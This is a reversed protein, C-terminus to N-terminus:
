KQAEGILDEVADTLADDNFSGKALYYDAGADLGRRRDEVRDKYSVIMVPMSKLHLDQKILNVLEIGDMRPMDVDTVILDYHTRRVANWGDMGDVAVDVLYGKSELLDREVERVTLSDDVVLIRKRSIKLQEEALHYAEDLRGGTVIHNIGRVLDDVDLIFLPDGNEMLAASSVNPVKGLRDDLTHVSLQRQDIYRDVVVGYQDLRDSIIVVTIRDEGIPMSEFGLVQAGSILGINKNNLSIYQRGEMDSIDETSVNLIRDVKNLPFAYPENGIDVLLASIVSLTLPLTLIFEVGLGPRNKINVSGGLAKVMDRVVDLGVGRGSVESVEDRTSFDPLFLFELLEDDELDKVMKDSILKKAILKKTLNAVNIGGGDDAVSIKLMGSSHSASLNITAQTPKGYSVRQETSEIGHDVANRLLHNIPSKIKDLVDRDVACDLGHINLKVDKDLSRAIDRVMRKLGATGDEFPRMRSGAVENYLKTALHSGKRDYDDYLNIHDSMSLRCVNLRVLVDKHAGNDIVNNAIMIERWVELLTVLEDQQRKINYLSNKFRSGAKSEVLLEGAMGLIRSMKEASIRLSRDDGAQVSTPASVPPETESEFASAVAAQDTPPPAPKTDGKLVASLSECVAVIRQNNSEDWTSIESEPVNSVVIVMDVAALLVDIDNSSLSLEHKQAAVFVDEMVHSIKVVPEVSVMRAAGKLSHAARMLAELTSAANPDEELNLLEAALTATQSEVEMRFLDFMSMDGLGGSTPSM